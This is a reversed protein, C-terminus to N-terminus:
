GPGALLDAMRRQGRDKEAFGTLSIKLTLVTLFPGGAPNLAGRVPGDRQTRSPSYLRATSGALGAAGHSFIMVLQWRDHSEDGVPRPAACWVTKGFSKGCSIGEQDGRLM